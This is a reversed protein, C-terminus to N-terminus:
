TRDRISSPGPPTTTNLRKGLLPSMKKPRLFACSACFSNKLFALPLWPPATNRGGWVAFCDYLRQIVRVDKSDGRLQQKCRAEDPTKSAVAAPIGGSRPSHTKSNLPKRRTADPRLKGVHIQGGNILGGLLTTVDCPQLLHRAHLRLALGQSLGLLIKAIRQLKRQVIETFLGSLLLRRVSNPFREVDGCRSVQRNPVADGFDHIGISSPLRCDNWKPSDRWHRM